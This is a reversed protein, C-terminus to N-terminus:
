PKEGLAAKHQNLQHCIGGEGKEHLKFYEGEPPTQIKKELSVLTNNSNQSSFTHIFILYITYKCICIVIDM